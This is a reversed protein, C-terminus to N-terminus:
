VIALVTLLVLQYMGCCPLLLGVLVLRAHRRRSPPTIRPVVDEKRSLLWDVILKRRVPYEAGIEVHINVAFGLGATEQLHM